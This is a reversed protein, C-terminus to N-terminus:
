VPKAMRCKSRLRKGAVVCGAGIAIGAVDQFWDVWEPSRWGLAGQLLETFTAYAILSLVLVRGPLPWQCTFALVALLFFSALHAVPGILRWWETTVEPVPDKILLLATLTILYTFFAGKALRDWLSGSM